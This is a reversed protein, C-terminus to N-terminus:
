YMRKGRLTSPVQKLKQTDSVSTTREIVRLTSTYRKLTRPSKLVCSIDDCSVVVLKEDHGFTDTGVGDQRTLAVPEVVTLLTGANLRKQELLCSKLTLRMNNIYNDSTSFFSHLIM